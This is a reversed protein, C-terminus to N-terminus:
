PSRPVRRRAGVRRRRRQEGVELGAGCILKELDGLHDLGAGGGAGLALDKEDLEAAEVRVAVLEIALLIKDGLQGRCHLREIVRGDCEADGALYRCERKRIKAASKL